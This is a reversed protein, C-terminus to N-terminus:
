NMDKCLPNAYSSLAQAMGRLAVWSMSTMTFLESLINDVPPPFSIGRWYNQRSFGHVAHFPLFM